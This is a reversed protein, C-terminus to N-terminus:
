LDSWVHPELYMHEGHFFWDALDDLRNLCDEHYQRPEPRPFHPHSTWDRVFRPVYYFGEALWRDLQEHDHWRECAVRMAREMRSFAARDWDLSPRLAAMFGGDLAEFEARLVAVAEDYNM